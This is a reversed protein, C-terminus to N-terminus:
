DATAFGAPEALRVCETARLKQWEAALLKDSDRYSRALRQAAADCDAISNHIFDVLTSRDAALAKHVPCGIM